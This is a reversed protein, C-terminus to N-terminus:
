WSLYSKTKDSALEWNDRCQKFVEATMKFRFGLGIKGRLDLLDDRILRADKLTTMPGTFPKRIVDFFEAEPIQGNELYYFLWKSLYPQFKSNKAYIWRVLWETATGLLHALNVVSGRQEWMDFGTVLYEEVKGACEKLLQQREWEPYVLKVRLLDRVRNDSDFLLTANQRDWRMVQSWHDSPSDAQLAQEYSEVPTDLAINKYILWGVAIYSAIEVVKDDNAYVILDLDSFDDCYGRAIGGTALIGVVGEISSIKQSITRAAQLFEEQRNVNRYVLKEQSMAHGAKM